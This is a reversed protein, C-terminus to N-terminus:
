KLKAELTDLEALFTKVGDELEAILGDHWEVRNIILQHQSPMRSDYSAFDCWARGTCAMQWTMQLLYKRPIKSGLITDIHTATTPCKIEILGDKGVLGDPSAGSMGISPHDIFGVADVMAETFFEYEAVAMPEEDIGWQMAENIYSETHKGTLREVLLEIMYKKRTVGQGKAMVDVIRSATVKGLRARFWEETRQKM